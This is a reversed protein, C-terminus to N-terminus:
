WRARGGRRVAGSSPIFRGYCDRARGGLQSLDIGDIDHAASAHTM